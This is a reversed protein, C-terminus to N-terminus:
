RQDRRDGPRGAGLAQWEADTFPTRAGPPAIRSAIREAALGTARVVEVPEPADYYEDDDNLSIMIAFDGARVEAQVYHTGEGPPRSIVFFRDGAGGGSISVSFLMAAASQRVVITGNNAV